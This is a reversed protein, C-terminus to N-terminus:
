QHGEEIVTVHYRGIYVRDHLGWWSAILPADITRDEFFGNWFCEPANCGGDGEGIYILLKEPEWYALAKCIAEDGYPPWSVLLIDHQTGLERVASAADLPAVPYIQQMKSHRENWSGDDTATIQIGEDALARALWGAGAMIELISRGNVIEALAIALNRTVIAWMGRKVCYDRAELQALTPMEWHPTDLGEDPMEPPIQGAGVDALFADLRM